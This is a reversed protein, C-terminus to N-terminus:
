SDRAALEAYAPRITDEILTDIRHNDWFAARAADLTFRCLEAPGYGFADVLHAFEDTLTTRSQLRNDCNVTVTFGLAALTAVPHAAISDCIGTQVNSTPCIELPIPRDRLESALAGLRAHAPDSDPPLIIDDMIRVGHGIRQAGCTHVASRISDLGDAEGAHATAHGGHGLVLEYAPAFRSASFGHEAGAIDFGVVGDAAHQVVLEAIATSPEAHRMSCLIQQVVISHGAEACRQMGEQLGVRVAEVADHPTLGRTLHQEPAWRTEGYVVGDHALDIVYERAVRTLAEPTQLVAVTHAFTELYRPLSGSSAADYFWTKLNEPSSSPLAWGIQAALDIITATRLGGDLHDHLSIKPLPRIQDATLTM